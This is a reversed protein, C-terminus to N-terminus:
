LAESKGSVRKLWQWQRPLSVRLLLKLVDLPWGFRNHRKCYIYHERLPLGKPGNLGRWRRVFPVAPDAWSPGSNRRCLGLFGPALWVRFGAKRARLGYDMDGGNHRFDASLSGVTQFVERPVLVINGNMTDSPQVSGSPPILTDRGRYGGYTLSRADPDCTSGVIIGPSGPSTVDYWSALLTSIASPFLRTDDNLWLYFDYDGAAAESWALRMGGGWYLEGNGAIIRVEPYSLAIAAATGDASGDDVLYVSLEAGDALSQESLAKLCTMTTDRRNHCTLLVAIRVKIETRPGTSMTATGAIDASRHTMNDLPM